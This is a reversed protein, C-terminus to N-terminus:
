GPASDICIHIVCQILERRLRSLRSSATDSEYLGYLLQLLRCPCRLQQFPAAESPTPSSQPVWKGLFHKLHIRWCDSRIAVMIRRLPFPVPFAAKALDLVSTSGKTHQFAVAPARRQAEQPFAKLGPDGKMQRRAPSNSPEAPPKRLGDLRMQREEAVQSCTSTNRPSTRALLTWVSLSLMSHGLMHFVWAPRDGQCPQTRGVGGDGSFAHHAELSAIMSDVQIRSPLGINSISYFLPKVVWQLARIFTETLLESWGSAGFLLFEQWPTPPVCLKAQCSCVVALFLAWSGEIRISRGSGIIANKRADCVAM